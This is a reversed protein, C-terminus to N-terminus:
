KLKKDVEDWFANIRKPKRPPKPVEEKPTPNQDEKRKEVAVDIIASFSAIRERQQEETLESFSVVDQTFEMASGLGIYKALILADETRNRAFLLYRIKAAADSYPKLLIMTQPSLMNHAEVLYQPIGSAFSGTGSKRKMLEKSRRAFAVLVFEEFDIEVDLRVVRERNKNLKVEDLMLDAVIDDREQALIFRSRPPNIQGRSDKDSAKIVQEGTKRRGPIISTLYKARFLVATTQDRLTKLEDEPLSDQQFRRILYNIQRVLAVRNQHERGNKDYADAIHENLAHRASGISDFENWREVLVGEQGPKQASRITSVWLMGILTPAQSGRPVFRMTDNYSTFLQLSRALESKVPDEPVANIERDQFAAVAARNRKGFAREIGGRVAHPPKGSNAETSM